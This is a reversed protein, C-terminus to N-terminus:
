ASVWITSAMKRGRCAPLRNLRHRWRASEVHPHRKYEANQTLVM